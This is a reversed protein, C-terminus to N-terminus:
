SPGPNWIIDGCECLSWIPTIQDTQGGHTHAGGREVIKGGRERGGGREGLGEGGVGSEWGREGKGM